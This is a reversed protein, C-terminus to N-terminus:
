KYDEYPHLEVYIFDDNRFQLEEIQAPEGDDDVLISMSVDLQLETETEGSVEDHPILVKDESDYSANDWDPHTYSVVTKAALRAVVLIPDGKETPRFATANEIDVETVTADDIESDEVDGELGWNALERGVAEVLEEKHDDLFNDIEPAEIQLGLAAFLDAL